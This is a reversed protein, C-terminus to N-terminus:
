WINYMNDKNEFYVVVNDYQEVKRLRDAIPLMGVYSSDIFLIRSKNLNNLIM